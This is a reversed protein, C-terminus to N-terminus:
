RSGRMQWASEASPIFVEKEADTIVGEPLDRKRMAEILRATHGFLYEADDKPLGETICRKLLPQYGSFGKRPVIEKLSEVVDVPIRLTISTMPRDKAPRKKLREPIM